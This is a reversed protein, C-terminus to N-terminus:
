GNYLLSLRFQTLNQNDAGAADAIDDDLFTGLQRPYKRFNHQGAPSDFFTLIDGCAQLTRNRDFLDIGVIGFLNRGQNAFVLGLQHDIDGQRILIQRNHVAAELCPDIVEVRGIILGLVHGFEFVAVLPVVLVAILVFADHGQQAAAKVGAHGIDITGIRHLMIVVFDVVHIDDIAVGAIMAM